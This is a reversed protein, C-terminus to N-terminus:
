DDITPIFDSWKDSKKRNYIEDLTWTGRNDNKNYEKSAINSAFAHRNGISISNYLGPIQIPSSRSNSTGDGVYSGGWTWLTCDSKIGGITTGGICFNLWTGPIQIPSSMDSTTNNGIQGSNNAGWAWLTCDSKLGVVTSTGAQIQIWTGPIQIPSSYSLIESINLGFSGNQNRGWVWLTCDSKIGYSSYIGSTAAVKIWTGPIQVPSSRPLISNNGLNGFVNYGWAWLTCDSKIGHSYLNGNIGCIWNGAIQVMSNRTTVTGDGQQGFNNCGAAWITNDQKLFIYTSTAGNGNVCIFKGPIQIPSSYNIPAVTSGFAGCCNNGSMWLDGNDKIYSTSQRYHAIPITNTDSFKIVNLFSTTNGTGFQGLSNDGWGFIDNTNVIIKAM